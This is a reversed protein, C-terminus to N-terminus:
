IVLLAVRAFDVPGDGFNLTLGLTGAALATLIGIRFGGLATAFLVAPLYPTFYVDPRILSLCWRAMSSLVLCCAAFAISFLPSPLSTGYWGRRFEDILKAM